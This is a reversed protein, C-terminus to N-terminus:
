HSLSWYEYRMTNQSIGKGPRVFRARPGCAARPNFVGTRSCINSYGWFDAAAATIKMMMGRNWILYSRRRCRQGDDVLVSFYYYMVFCRVCSSCHWGLLFFYMYLTESFYIRVIFVSLRSLHGRALFGSQLCCCRQHWCRLSCWDGCRQEHM